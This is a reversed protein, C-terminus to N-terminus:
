IIWKLQERHLIVTDRGGEQKSTQRFNLKQDSFYFM